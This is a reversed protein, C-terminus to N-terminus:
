HFNVSSLIINNNKIVEFYIVQNTHEIIASADSAFFFEVKKDELPEFESTSGTRPLTPFEPKGHPRYEVIEVYKFWKNVLAFQYQICMFVSLESFMQSDVSNPENIYLFSAIRPIGKNIKNKNM